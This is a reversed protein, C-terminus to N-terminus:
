AVEFLDFKCKLTVQSSIEGAGGDESGGGDSDLGARGRVVESGDEEGGALLVVYSDEGGSGAHARMKVLTESPQMETYNVYGSGGGGYYAKGGGGGIAVAVVPPCAGLSPAWNM